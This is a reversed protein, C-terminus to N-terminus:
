ENRWEDTYRNCTNVPIVKIFLRVFNRDHAMNLYTIDHPILKGHRINFLCLIVSLYFTPKMFEDTVWEIMLRNASVFGKQIRRRRRNYIFWIVFGVVAIVAVIDLYRAYKDIHKWNHGLEIGAYTLVSNWIISGALTYVAFKFLNTRGIGAPLSVYTRVAPLLRGVFAIKEGYNHFLQETFILHHPRFFIYKGYKILFARGLKIGLFYTAISGVLNGFSGALIVGAAGMKGTSVLFGSFPMIIESPIPILASELIMLLFIGGYGLHSIVSTIYGLIPNITEVLIAM